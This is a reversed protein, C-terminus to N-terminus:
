VVSLAYPKTVDNRPRILFTGVDRDALRAEAEERNFNMMKWCRPDWSPTLSDYDLLCDVLDPIAGCAM